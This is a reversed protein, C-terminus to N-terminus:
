LTYRFAPNEKDTLDAFEYNEPLEVEGTEAMAKDRRKNEKDDLYYLALFCMTGVIFSVIMVIKAPLYNPADQVRFTQPSTINGICYGIISVAHVTIRKTSGNINSAIYAYFCSISVTAIYFTYIGFLKAGANNSFALLIMGVAGLTNVISSVLLSSSIFYSLAIALLPSLIDLVGGPISMLLSTDTAFGLDEKYLTSVFNQFGGNPLAYTCVYVLLIYTRIDTIAEIFQYKKFKTSGFGQQNQRSREVVYKKETENLFWAKVPVDPIHFMSGIASVFTIVAFIVYLLKWAPISYSDRHTYLGYAITCAMINGLGQAGFWITTRIFQQNGKFKFKKEVKRTYWMTTIIMYAPTMASELIGLLVRCVLFTSASKCAAHCGLVISWLIMFIGLTKSIPFRTLFRDAIFQFGLVGFYFSSGVWSYLNGKFEPIDDRLGM